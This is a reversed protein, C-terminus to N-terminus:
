RRLAAQNGPMASRLAHLRPWQDKPVFTLAAANVSYRKFAAKSNFRKPDEQNYRQYDAKSFVDIVKDIYVHGLHVGSKADIIETRINGLPFGWFKYVVWGLLLANYYDQPDPREIVSGPVPEYFSLYGNRSDQMSFPVRGLHFLKSRSKFLPAGSIAGVYTGRERTKGSVKRETVRKLSIDQEFPTLYKKELQIMDKESMTGEGARALAPPVKNALVYAAAAARLAARRSRPMGATGSMRIASIPQRERRQNLGETVEGLAPAAAAKEFQSVPSKKTATASMSSVPLLQQQQQQNQPVTPLSSMDPVFNAVEPVLRAPKAYDHSPM